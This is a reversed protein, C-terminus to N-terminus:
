SQNSKLAHIFAFKNNSQMRRLNEYFSVCKRNKYNKYYDYEEFNRLELLKRFVGVIQVIRKNEHTQFVSALNKLHVTYHNQRKKTNIDDVHYAEKWIM